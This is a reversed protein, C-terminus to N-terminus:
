DERTLITIIESAFRVIGDAEKLAEDISTVPLREIREISREVEILFRLIPDDVPGGDRLGQLVIGEIVKPEGLGYYIAAQAKRLSELILTPAMDPSKHAAELEAEAERIYRLAWGKRYNDMVVM